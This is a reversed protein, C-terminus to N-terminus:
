VTFYPPARSSKKSHYVEKLIQPKDIFITTYFHTPIADIGSSFEYSFFTIQKHFEKCDLSKKHLHHESDSMCVTHEHNELDHIVEVLTPTTM